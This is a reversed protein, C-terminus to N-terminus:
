LLTLLWRLHLFMVGIYTAAVLKLPYATWTIRKGWALLTFMFLMTLAVKVLIFWDQGKHLVADMIPNAETIVGLNLGLITLALDAMSLLVVISVTADFSIQIMDKNHPKLLPQIREM